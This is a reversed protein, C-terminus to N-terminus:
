FETFEGCSGCEAFARYSRRGHQERTFPRYTLGVHGCWPCTAERCVEADISPGDVLGRRPPRAEYGDLEGSGLLQYLTM